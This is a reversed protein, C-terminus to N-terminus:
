ALNDENIDVTAHDTKAAPLHVETPKIAARFRISELLQTVTRFESIVSDVTIKYTQLWITIPQATWIEEERARRIQGIDTGAATAYQGLLLEKAHELAIHLGPDAHDDALGASDIEMRGIQMNRANNSSFYVLLDIEDRSRFGSIGLSTSELDGVAIGISPARSLAAVLQAADDNSTTPRLTFPFAMVEALYGGNAKKLGSLLSVARQQIRTRQPASQQTDFAHSM